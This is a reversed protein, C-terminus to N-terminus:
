TNLLGKFHFIKAADHAEGSRSFTQSSSSGNTAIGL